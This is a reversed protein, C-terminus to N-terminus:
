KATTCGEPARFQLSNCFADANRLRLVITREEGCNEMLFTVRVIKGTREIKTIADCRVPHDLDFQAAFASFPFHITVWLEDNTVTVRLCNNAGGMRTFLSKHSSGSTWREEFLTNADNRNQLRPGHSRRRWFMFAMYGFAWVFAVIVLYRFAESLVKQLQQLM